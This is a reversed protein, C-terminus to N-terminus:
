KGKASINKKATYTFTADGGFLYKPGSHLTDIDFEVRIPVTVTSATSANQLGYFNLLYLINLNKSGKYHVTGKKFDFKFLSASTKRDIGFINDVVDNGIYIRTIVIEKFYDNFAQESAFMFAPSQLTIDLSDGAENDSLDVSFSKKGIVAATLPIPNPTSTVTGLTVSRADSGGKKDTVVLQAVFIGDSSYTHTETATGNIDETGDGFLWHYQLVDNDPDIAAATFTIPTGPLFGIASSDFATIEPPHNGAVPTGGTISEIWPIAIDVRTNYSLDGFGANSKIGGSTVSAVYMIGNETIFQPGGSDGPATNSEQNPAPVNDFNWEVFTNTVIDIPSKGTAIMGKPPSNGNSGTLGTGLYGYGALTLITGVAPTNRYLPSPTIKKVDTDLEYIALDIAGEVQQSNDGAYSPHVFVHKTHYTKSGLIFLGDKQKFSISGPSQNNVCHAATLVFRPAILTGTCFETKAVTTITGVTPFQSQPVLTGDIIRPKVRVDEALLIPAAFCIALLAFLSLTTRADNTQVTIPM